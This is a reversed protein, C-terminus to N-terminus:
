HAPEVLDLRREIRDLRAEVRDLRRHIGAQGEELNTIRVERVDEIVRDIKEDIRRIYVLVMNDPAEAM